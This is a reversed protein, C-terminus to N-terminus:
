VGLEQFLTVVRKNVVEGDGRWVEVLGGRLQM